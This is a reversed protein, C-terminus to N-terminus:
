LLFERIRGVIKEASHGDGFPQYDPNFVAPGELKELIDSQAPHALRNCGGTLTEPWPTTNM